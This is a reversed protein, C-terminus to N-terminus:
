ARGEPAQFAKCLAHRIADEMASLERRIFREDVGKRRMIDAQTRLQRAIHREAADPSLQAAYFAQRDIM